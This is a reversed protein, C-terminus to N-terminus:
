PKRLLRKWFPLKRYEDLIGEAGQAEALERRLNDVESLPVSVM